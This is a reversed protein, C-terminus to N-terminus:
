PAVGEDLAADVDAAHGDWAQLRTLTFSGVYKLSVNQENSFVANTVEGYFNVFDDGVAGYFTNSWGNVRIAIRTLAGADTIPSGILTEVGGDIGGVELDWVDTGANWRYRLIRCNVTNLMNYRIELYNGSAPSAPPTLDLLIMGEAATTYFTSIASPPTVQNTIATGGTITDIIPIDLQATVAGSISFCPYFSGSAPNVTDIFLLTWSLYDGGKIWIELGTARERLAVYYAQPATYAGIEWATGARVYYLKGDSAFRVGTQTTSLVPVASSLAVQITETVASPVVSFIQTFNATLAHAGTGDNYYYAPDAYATIASGSVTITTDDITVVDGSDASSRMPSLTALFVAYNGAIEAARAIHGANNPHVGDDSHTAINTAFEETLDAAVFVLSSSYGALVDLIYTKCTAPSLPTAVDERYPIVVGIAANPCATIVQDIGAELNTKFTSEDTGASLDNSGITVVALKVRPHTGTLDTVLHTNWYDTKQGSYGIRYPAERFVTDPILDELDGVLKSIWYDNNTATSDGTVFIDQAQPYLALFLGSMLSATIDGGSGFMAYPFAGAATGITNRTNVSTDLTPETSEPISTITFILTGDRYVYGTGAKLHVAWLVFRSGYIWDNLAIRPVVASANPRHDFGYQYAITSVKTFNFSTEAAGASMSLIYALTTGAQDAANHLMPLVFWCDDWDWAEGLSSANKAFRLNGVNDTKAVNTGVPFAESQYTVRAINSWQGDYAATGEANDVTSGSAETTPFVALLGPLALAQTLFDATITETAASVAPDSDGAANTAVVSAYLAKGAWASDITPTTGVDSDVLSDDADDYLDITYSSPSYAWTGVNISWQHGAVAVGEISPATLNVPEPNYDAVASTADSVAPTSGGAANFATVEFTILAGIEASTLTYTNATAGSIAVDDALWRYAYSGPYNTWTGNSGSLAEGVMATGTISPAATNAPVQPLVESTGASEVPDSSAGGNTAVVTVTIVTGAETDTLLYTDGTAGDIAVYDAYWQYAFSSPSQLWEGTSASLTEGVQATGTIVPVTLSLPVAAGSLGLIEEATLPTDWLAVHAIYGHWPAAGAITSAGIVVTTTALAGSWTGISTVTTSVQSGSLYVKIEPVGEDWTLAFPFWDTNSYGTVNRNATTTAQRQIDFRGNTASKFVAFLNSANARLTLARRATSDSWDASGAVKAWGFLTGSASVFASALSASYIDVSDNSGDFSPAAYGDLFPEANLTVGSYTGHRGNGSSDIAQTGSTENLMWYALLHDSQTALVAAAYATPVPAAAGQGGLLLGLLMKRRLLM